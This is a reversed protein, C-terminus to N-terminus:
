WKSSGGFIAGIENSLHNRHMDNWISDTKLLHKPFDLMKSRQGNLWLLPEEDCSPLYLKVASTTWGFCFDPLRQFHKTVSPVIESSHRIESSKIFRKLHNFTHLFNRRNSELFFLLLYWFFFNAFGSCPYSDSLESHRLPSISVSPQSQPTHLKWTQLNNYLGTAM